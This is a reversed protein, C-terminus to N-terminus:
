PVSSLGSMSMVATIIQWTQLDDVVQPIHHALGFRAELPPVVADLQLDLLHSLCPEQLFAATQFAARCDPRNQLCVHPMLTTSFGKVVIQAQVSGARGANITCM